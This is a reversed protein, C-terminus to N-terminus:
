LHGVDRGCKGIADQADHRGREVPFVVLLDSSKEVVHRATGIAARALGCYRRENSPGACVGARPLGATLVDTWHSGWGGLGSHTHTTGLYLGARDLGLTPLDAIVIDAVERPVLLMDLATLVVKREGVQLAISKVWLPDHVGEAPSDLRASAGALSLRPFTGTHWDDQTGSLNPTLNAEGFGALLPGRAFAIMATAADLDAVTKQFAATTAYPREDVRSIGAIAVVAVVAVLVLLVKRLRRRKVSM